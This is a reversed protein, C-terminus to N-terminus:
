STAKLRRRRATLDYFIDDDDRSRHGASGPIVKLLLLLSLFLCKRGAKKQNTMKKTPIKTPPFDETSM